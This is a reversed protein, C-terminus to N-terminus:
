HHMQQVIQNQILWYGIQKYVNKIQVFEYELDGTCQLEVSIVDGVLIFDDNVEWFIDTTCGRSVCNDDIYQLDAQNVCQFEVDGRFYDSPFPMPDYANCDVFVNGGIEVFTGRPLDWDFPDDTLDCGLLVCDSENTKKVFDQSECVYEQTGIFYDDGPVAINCCQFSFNARHKM